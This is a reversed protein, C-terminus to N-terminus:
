RGGRPAGRVTEDTSEIVAQALDPHAMGLKTTYSQVVNPLYPDAPIVQPELRRGSWCVVTPRRTAPWVIVRTDFQVEVDSIRAFSNAAMASLQDFGSYDHGDKFGVNRVLRGSWGHHYGADLTVSRLMLMLRGAVVVHDLVDGYDPVNVGHAVVATDALHDIVEATHGGSDDVPTGFAGTTPSM